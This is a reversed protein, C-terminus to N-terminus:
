QASISIISIVRSMAINVCVIPKPMLISINIKVFSITIVMVHLDRLCM